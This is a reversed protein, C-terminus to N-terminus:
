KPLLPQGSILRTLDHFTVLAILALLLAMGITHAYSEFKPHVRRRTVMEILIFFLRGGDLAPIPLINLIALNLSLLSVFSLVVAPGFEIYRGTLQAIGIPGAVSYEPVKGSSVIQGLLNGGAKILLISQNFAEKLGAVPAQYWSYKKVEVNQSIGVGMPGEGKPYNIRPTIKVTKEIQGSTIRLTIGRGQNKKTEDILQQTSIIKISNIYTIRDGTKIGSSYAPSGKVVNNVVVRDGPVSVGVIAFLFSFILVALLFNMFVGAAVVMAKQWPPRAYFARSKHTIKKIKHSIRGAGAEDEGYLKVFGGIPLWNLSYFTEGIKKGWIRPPLGFGFEEVKIKFKKAVFFHGFEHILVLVTLVLLFVLITM